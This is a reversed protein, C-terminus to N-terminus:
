FSLKVVFLVPLIYFCDMLITEEVALAVAIGEIFCLGQAEDETGVGCCDARVHEVFESGIWLRSAIEANISDEPVFGDVGCM